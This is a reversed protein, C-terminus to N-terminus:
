YFIQRNILPQTTILFEIFISSPLINRDTTYHLDSWITWAPNQHSLGVRRPPMEFAAASAQCQVAELHKVTGTSYLYWVLSAFELSQHVICKYVQVAKVSSPCTYLSNRLHNLTRSAQCNNIMRSSTPILTFVWTNFPLNLRYHDVECMINLWLHCINILFIYPIVSLTLLWKCSWEYVCNLDVQLLEQDSPFTIKKYLAIYDAFISYALYHNIDDIYLVSEQPVGTVVSLWDSFGDMSLM